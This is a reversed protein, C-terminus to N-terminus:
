KKKSLPAGQKPLFAENITIEIPPATSEKATKKTTRKAVKAGATESLSSGAIVPTDKAPAVFNAVNDYMTGSTGRSRIVHGYQALRESYSTFSELETQTSDFRGDEKQKYKIAKQTGNTIKGGFFHDNCTKCDLKTGGIRIVRYKAYSGDSAFSKLKKSHTELKKSHTKLYEPNELLHEMIIMEGHVSGNLSSIRERISDNLKVVIINCQALASFFNREDETLNQKSQLASVADKVANGIYTEDKGNELKCTKRISEQSTTAPTPAKQYGKVIKKSSSKTKQQGGGTQVIIDDARPEGADSNIAVFLNSGVKSLAIHPGFAKGSLARGAEEAVDNLVKFKYKDYSKGEIADQKSLTSSQGIVNYTDTGYKKYRNYTYSKRGDAESGNDTAVTMCQKVAIPTRRHVLESDKKPANTQLSAARALLDADIEKDSLSNDDHERTASQGLGKKQQVVHALEHPLCEEEGQALYIDEGYTFGRAGIERPKQSNYHVKVDNLSLGTHQEFKNRLDQPLNTNIGSNQSDFSFRKQLKARMKDELAPDSKSKSADYGMLAGMAQNGISAGMTPSQQLSAIQPKKMRQAYSKM